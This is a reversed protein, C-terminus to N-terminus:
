GGGGLPAIAVGASELRGRVARAIEAAGETDGHLCITQARVELRSGDSAIVFGDRAIGVAQDAAEDADHL